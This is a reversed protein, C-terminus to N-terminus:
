PKTTTEEHVHLFDMQREGKRLNELHATQGEGKELLGLNEYTAVVDAESRISIDVLRVLRLLKEQATMVPFGHPVNAYKLEGHSSRRSEVFDLHSQIRTQLLDNASSLFSAQQELIFPKFQPDLEVGVCNRACALAGLATTGTGLFPDLVTDFYLSYMNILRYPLELPFAGSRQRLKDHNLKQPSGKMEWIDSFWKNREEWFFASSNRAKKEATTRFERKTGKRFVLIYENELTVYAGAPLMGSGLFKNPSNTPKHWAISPLPDFGLQLFASTIRSHNPFLRFRGGIKRTADGINICAFAGWKLVRFLEKWVRDLELHMAEFAGQGKEQELAKKADPSLESFLDDWMQIMPYPPSTVVLDISESDIFGLDRADSFVQKCRAQM